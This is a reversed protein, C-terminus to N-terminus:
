GGFQSETFTWTVRDGDQISRKDAGVNGAMNNVTYQWYSNNQGNAVGDIGDILLSDYQGYYTTDVNFSGEEAAAMTLGYVTANEGTVTLNEYTFTTNSRAQGFAISMTATVPRGDPSSGDENQLAYIGVIVALAILLIVAAAFVSKRM